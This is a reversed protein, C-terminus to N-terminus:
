PPVFPTRTPLIGFAVRDLGESSYLWAAELIILCILASPQSRTNGTCPELDCSSQWTQLRHGSLGPLDSKLQIKIHQLRGWTRAQKAGKQPRCAVPQLIDVDGEPKQLVNIHQGSGAGPKVGKDCAANKCLPGAQIEHAGERSAIM